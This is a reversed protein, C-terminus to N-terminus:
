FHQNNVQGRPKGQIIKQNLAFIMKFFYKQKDPQKTTRKWGSEGIRLFPFLGPKEGHVGKNGERGAKTEQVEMPNM